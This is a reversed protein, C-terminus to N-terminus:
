VSVLAVGQANCNQKALKEFLGDKILRMPVNAKAAATCIEGIIGKKTPEGEGELWLRYVSRKGARLAELVARRGYILESV